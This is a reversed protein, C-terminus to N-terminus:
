LMKRIHDVAPLSQKTFYLSKTFFLKLNERKETFLLKRDQFLGNKHSKGYILKSPRRTSPSPKQAKQSPTSPWNV